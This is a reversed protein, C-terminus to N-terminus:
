PLPPLDMRRLVYEIDVDPTGLRGLYHVYRASVSEAYPSALTARCPLSVVVDLALIEVRQFDLLLNPIDCLGPLAHYRDPSEARENGLLAAVARRKTKSPNAKCSIVETAEDLLEAIACHVRATKPTRPPTDVMDCSPWLIVIYEDTGDGRPRVRVDGLQGTEPSLPPMIYLEAPHVTGEAVTSAASDGFVFRTVEGIGDRSLTASLRQLLVHLFEPRDAIPRFVDWHEQVFQWMYDRLVRDVHTVVGRYIAPIRLDFLAHIEDRLRELGNVDKAVLRVFHSRHEEVREAHATYLVVPVFGTSQLAHLLEIGAERGGARPSGQFVDLILLDVQRRRIEALADEFSGIEHIELARGQVVEGNLFERVQARIDPEDEVLIVRWREPVPESPLVPM